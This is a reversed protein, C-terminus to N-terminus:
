FKSVAPIITDGFLNLAKQKYVNRISFIVHTIGLERLVKCEEVVQDATVDEPVSSLATKEIDDYNRGVEKCHDKLIDLKRQLEESGLRVFLNCADAYQAVFRLTKKEGGGGIMIPPHPKTVPKPQLMPWELSYHKGTFPKEDGKWMQHALQLTEELQEFREKVPPFAFGLGKSEEENWAAGVGFYARGGSLVDLSTVANILLSPHRYIVGTVLTGLKAKKTVGALYGLTTYGELMPETPEGVYHIQFFHDMVWISYFGAKDATAAIEGLTQGIKTDGGPWTFNNIQLGIRM